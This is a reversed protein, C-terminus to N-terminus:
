VTFAPSTTAITLQTFIEDKYSTVRLNGKEERAKGRLRAKTVITEIRASSTVPCAHFSPLNPIYKCTCKAAIAAHSSSAITPRTQTIAHATVAVFSSFSPIADAARYIGDLM